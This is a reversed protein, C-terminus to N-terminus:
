KDRQNDKMRQSLYEKDVIEEKQSTLHPYKQDTITKDLHECVLQVFEDQWLTENKVDKRLTKYDMDDFSENKIM